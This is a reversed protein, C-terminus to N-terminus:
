HRSKFWRNSKRLTRRRRPSPHVAAGLPRRPSHDSIFDSRRKADLHDEYVALAVIALIALTVFLGIGIVLTM